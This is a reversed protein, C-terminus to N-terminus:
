PTWPRWPELFPITMLRAPTIRRHFGSSNIDLYIGRNHYESLVLYKSDYLCTYYIFTQVSKFPRHGERWLLGVRKGGVGCVGVPFCSPSFICCERHVVVSFANPFIEYPSTKLVNSFASQSLTLSCYASFRSCHLILIRLDTRFIHASPSAPQSRQKEQPTLNPLEAARSFPSPPPLTLFCASWVRRYLLGYKRLIV